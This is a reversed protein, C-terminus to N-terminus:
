QLISGWHCDCDANYSSSLIRYAFPNVPLKEIFTDYVDRKPSM